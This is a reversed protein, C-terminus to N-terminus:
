SGKNLIEKLLHLGAIGSKEPHFQLGFINNLQVIAPIKSNGWTFYHSVNISNIAHFFYSHSFYFYNLSKEDKTYIRDWGVHPIKNTSNPKLKIIEGQILNIGEITAGETGRSALLHMGLCIGLLKKGKKIEAQLNEVIQMELLNSMGYHFAGVGPLILADSNLLDRNNKVVLPQIEIQKLASFISGFNGAGYDIIGVRM